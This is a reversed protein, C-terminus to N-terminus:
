QPDLASTPEDLLLVEPETSLARALCLRQQEGGSLAGADRDLGFGPLGVADLLSALLADSPAPSGRPRVSLSDRLSGEFVVPRQLILAVRRRLRRPDLDTV